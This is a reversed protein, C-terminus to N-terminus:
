EFRKKNKIDWIEVTVASPKTTVPVVPLQSNTEVKLNHVGPPLNLVDVSTQFLKSMDKNESTYAYPLRALIKVTEPIAKAYFGDKLGTIMIPVDAVEKELIRLKVKIDVAIVPDGAIEALEQNLNLKTQKTTSKSLGNIDIPMTDIANIEDIIASPGSVSLHNPILTIVTLEYNEALKGQTIYNIPIDKNILQDLHLNITKPQIRLPTIGRPFKISDLENNIILNGPEAESLDISRTVHQKDLGRILGRAGSVTVELQTKYQNSIVLHHPINVIEVPIQVSMDVRDEGSVFYWLFVAFLVSLGKALWDEPWSWKPPKSKTLIQKVLKEM